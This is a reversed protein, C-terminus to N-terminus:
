RRSEGPSNGVLPLSVAIATRGAGASPLAPTWVRGGYKEVIRRALPLALGLGGRLEDFVNPNSEYSEQVDAEPAVVVMAVQGAAKKVIRRDAAITAASPQERLVARFFASFAAAMRSRDGTIVAGAGDGSLRLGVGRDEAEHMESAVEGILQFVDIAEDKFAAVGADIKSVDSLENVLAVMRACAKDAEDVMKRQRSSLSPDNDRQLMRLYGSVVSAPTRFEHVALSLLQAYAISASSNERDDAM